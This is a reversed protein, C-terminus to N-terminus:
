HLVTTGVIILKEGKVRIMFGDGVLEELIQMDELDQLAKASEERNTNGILIEKSGKEAWDTDLKLRVGTKALVEEGLKSFAARVDPKANDSRIMVYDSVGNKIISLVNKNQEGPTTGQEGPTTGQEDSPDKVSPPPNDCSVCALLMLLALLACLIKTLKM